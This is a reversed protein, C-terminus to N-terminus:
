QADPGALRDASRAGLSTEVHRHMLGAAAEAEGDQV